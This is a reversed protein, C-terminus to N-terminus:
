SQIIFSPEQKIAFNALKVFTLSYTTKKAFPAINKLRQQM